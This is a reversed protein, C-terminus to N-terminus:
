PFSGVFRRELGRGSVFWLIYSAIYDSSGRRDLSEVM